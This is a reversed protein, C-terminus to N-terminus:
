RIWIAFSTPESARDACQAISVLEVELYSSALDIAASRRTPRHVGVGGLEPVDDNVLPDDGRGLHKGVVGTDRHGHGGHFEVLRTTCRLKGERLLSYEEVAVLCRSLALFPGPGQEVRQSSREGFVLCLFAM